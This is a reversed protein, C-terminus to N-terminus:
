SSKSAIRSPDSPPAHPPAADLPSTPGTPLPVTPLAIAQLTDTVDAPPGAQGVSITKPAGQGQVEPHDAQTSQAEPMEPHDSPDEADACPLIVTKAVAAIANKGKLLASTQPHFLWM